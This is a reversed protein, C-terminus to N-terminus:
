EGAAKNFMFTLPKPAAPGDKKGPAPLVKPARLGFEAGHALGPIPHAGHIDSSWSQTAGEQFTDKLRQYNLRAMWDEQGVLPLQEMSKLEPTHRILPRGERRAEDNYIEVESLAVHQGRLMGSEPPAFNVRTLNTMARVVTEINRRRMKGGYANEIEETMYSRVRGMNKTQTLLQRPDIIGSSLQQGRRVQIGKRIGPLVKGTTIRHEKGAIIVTQGGRADDKVSDVTGAVEALRAANPLTEPVKLLQKVRQFADTIGAGSAVGGSHFTRMTLQTVPEGLAHGAIVGINTGAQHLKGKENLGFCKACIGKKMICHLPSRVIVQAVGSNQARTAMASTFLVGVDFVTGDKLTVKKALYRDITDVNGPSMAVGRPTGCDEATIQYNLVTNIIDKTLAGPEATGRARDLTGKRAGHMSAWYQALPLGEGYSTTIPVPVPKKEPDTVLMPGFVLQSFQNWGGRAGSVGWEWMRNKDERTYRAEGGVQLEKRAKMYLDVIEKDKAKRSKRSKRIRAEEVKYKALVEDRYAKGDHFDDLSFSSGNLYSLQNGLNKWTDVTMPFHREDTRGVKALYGKLGKKNLRFQPDYLLKKDGRMAPPLAAELTLRGATTKKGGVTLVDTPKVKGDKMMEIAKAATTSINTESGWKTAQYLGLLSDQAPVPMLGFHTPSFLSKSPVMGRAEDVAKESVPVYLAMTNSLVVGDVAMFNDAGPVTLDYGDEKIGTIEVSKVQEFHFDACQEVLQKWRSYLPHRCRDEVLRIVERALVVSLHKRPVSQLSKSLSAYISPHKKSTLIKRLDAALAPPLPVLRYRSYAGSRAPPHEGLFRSLVERKGPHALDLDLGGHSVAWHLDPTSVNLIWCPTGSPTKTTTITSSVQFTRLLYQIEQVLRISTSTFSALYQPKKKASSISLSGDTDWLGSLLGACFEMSGSLFQPPLHKNKSGLGIQVSVFRAFAASSVTYKTSGMSGPLKGETSHQHTVLPINKFVSLLSSEWRAYVAPFAAAFCVGKELGNSVTAWGDGALSGLLYGLSKSDSVQPRLRDMSDRSLRFECRQGELFPVTDLVPVYQEAAESPRRRCWELTDADVGFVAREDDDTIIQRGSGLTVIEIERQAHESWYTVEYFAAEGTEESLGVVRIGEPVSWFRIHGKERILERRPFDELNCVVFEGDDNLYPVQEKFRASMEVRRAAWFDLDANYMECPIRLLVTGIQQDGDFDANFGGTVLPHIKIAKGEVLKPNFAMISFKHLAPDRKMMVPREAVVEKLVRMARPHKQDILKDAALPATGERFLARVVFPRYMELAIPIPLGVQDLGMDPEPVITSRGSLDQRRGLVGKHFYSRKPAGAGQVKGTMLEMLGTHHRRGTGRGLTMGTMRLGRISDYLHSKSAEVDSLPTSPDARKIATNAQGVSLYLGNLDDVIQSGDLGISIKRMKPPIVPLYENTYADLASIGNKKLARLYRIKKYALNLKSSRLNPLATEAEALEKDVDLDKLRQVIVDFGSQGRDTLKPGVLGEYEKKTIGLLTQIAPEFVPNPMRQELKIHSWYPGDMGGTIRKDFLGRAEEITRIGKAYLAKEPMPIEGNSIRRLQKDTLPMLTYQDGKKETNIGMAKLYALFNQMGRTSQPPPLARGTMVADWVEEQEGDSKYTYAERLNHKAGHALMAYTSLMDLKQGGGPIGSGSPADGSGTYGTGFSRATMKKDVMHHLKLLYQDGVMIRGISRGTEPDFLEENGDPNFGHKKLDDKVKQMYDVGPVFNEIVYPKGTKRAIKSAATELVQGINMRSPVGAPNLLVQVPKGDSDHPMQEDPVIRSVIGKNGHRGTLKDGVVMPENTRVHVTITQRQLGPSRIIEVVEGPYDHDWVVARDRFDRVLSRNLKTLIADEKIEQRPSLVAILIDGPEVKEGKKIVGTSDLKRLKEPSKKEPLAYDAWKALDGEKGGRMGSYITVSSQHMHASSMKKATSESIVIGDEFNLGKWPIYAVRLNSGLALEGNQTYNSDALLDGRKVRDGVKVRPDSHMMSKGGNLPYHNYIPIRVTKTGTKIHIRDPTVRTVRGDVPSHTSSFSGVMSEFTMKGDTKVQVLPSERNTLGVAQEQQKAAMMARNGSNNQMFPVLNASFSFLGKASPLIYRVERWPRSTTQRDKDYCVVEPTRPYPKGSVWKVQDPYAVNEFELDAPSAEVWAGKRKDWVRTRLEQGTSTKSRGKVSKARTIKTGLPLHLAIGTETSEPTQVIDLFGLHTPNILKDKDLNVRGSGVGGFAKGRITTRMYGSIFQLPNTQEPRQSYDFVGSIIKNYANSSIISDITADERDIKDQVKRRLEYTKKDLAEVIFDETTALYKETLSQRDDPKEERTPDDKTRGRQIKLLRAASKLLNEGNVHDYEKGFASKMAEPWVETENIFYAKIARQQEEYSPTRKAGPPKLSLAKYLKATDPIPKSAKVNAAYVIPGFEERMKQDTVGLAKLLAYIPTNTTGLRILIRGREPDYKLDFGLGRALSWRAQIEGNSAIRHYPRPKSRFVSDHQREQGDIIYSYRRTLKPLRGLQIERRELEQGGSTVLRLEAKIPVGWTRGQTRAKFQAEINDVHHADDYEVAREDFRVNVLELRRTRGEMPFQRRVAEAVRQKMSEFVEVPNLNAM